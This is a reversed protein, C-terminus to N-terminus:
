KDGDSPFFELVGDSEAEGSLLSDILNVFENYKELLKGHVDRLEGAEGGNAAKEMRAALESVENSGIM